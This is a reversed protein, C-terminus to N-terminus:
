KLNLDESNKNCIEDNKILKNINGCDTRNGASTGSTIETENTKNYDPKNRINKEVFDSLKLIPLMTNDNKWFIIKFILNEISNDKNFHRGKTRGVVETKSNLFFRKAL